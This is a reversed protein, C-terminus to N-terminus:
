LGLSAGPPDCRPRALPNPCRWLGAWTTRRKQRKVPVLLDHQALLDFVRDRSMSLGEKGWQPQYEHFLKRGGMRPHRHRILLVREVIQQQRQEMQYHAQRSIGVEQCRERM